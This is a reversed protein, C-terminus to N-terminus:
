DTSLGEGFEGSKLPFDPSGLHRQHYLVQKGSYSVYSVCTQDRPQSCGGSSPMAVWGLIRAQLIRGVSSGPPSCDVPDCLTLCSQLSKARLCTLPFRHGQIKWETISHPGSEEQSPLPTMITARCTPVPAELEKVPPNLSGVRLWTSPQSGPRGSGLVQCGLLGSVLARSLAGPKWSWKLFKQTPVTDCKILHNKKILQLYNASSKFCWLSECIWM